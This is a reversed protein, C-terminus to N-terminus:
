ASHFPFYLTLSLGGKDDFGVIDCVGESRTIYCSTGRGVGMECAFCDLRVAGEDGM